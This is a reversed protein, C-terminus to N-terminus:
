RYVVTQSQMTFFIFECMITLKHTFKIKYIQKVNKCITKWGIFQLRYNQQEKKKQPPPTLYIIWVGM